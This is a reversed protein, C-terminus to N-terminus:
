TGLSGVSIALYPSGGAWVRVRPDLQFSAARQGGSKQPCVSSKHGLQGCAFCSLGVQSGRGSGVSPVPFTSRTLEGQSQQPNYGRQRKGDGQGEQGRKSDRHKEEDEEQMMLEMHAAADM